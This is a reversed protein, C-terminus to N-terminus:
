KECEIWEFGGCFKGNCHQSSGICKTMNPTMDPGKYRKAREYKMKKCFADAAPRGCGQNFRLCWDLRRGQIWPRHFIKTAKDYKKTGFQQSAGQAVYRDWLAVNRYTIGVASAYRIHGREHLSGLGWNTGSQELGWPFRVGSPLDFWTALKRDVWIEYDHASGGWAFGIHHWRDYEIFAQKGGQPGVRYWKKHLCTLILLLRDDVKGPGNEVHTITAAIAGQGHRFKNWGYNEGWLSGSRKKMKSFAKRDVKVWMAITGHRRFVNRRTGLQWYIVANSSGDKETPTFTVGESSNV